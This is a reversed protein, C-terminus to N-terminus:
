VQWSLNAFDKLNVVRCLVAVLDHLANSPVSSYRIVADM